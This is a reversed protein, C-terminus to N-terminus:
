GQKQLAKLQAKVSDIKALRAKEAAQAVEPNEYDEEGEMEQVEEGGDQQPMLKGVNALM